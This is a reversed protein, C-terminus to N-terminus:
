GARKDKQEIQEQIDETTEQIADIQKRTTHEARDVLERRILTDTDVVAAQIQLQREGVTDFTTLLQEMKEDIHQVGKQQALIAEQQESIKENVSNAVEYASRAHATGEAIQVGLAALKRDTSAASTKTETAFTKAIVATEEALRTAVREMHELREDREEDRAKILEVMELHNRRLAERLETRYVRGEQGYRVFGWILITVITFGNFLRVFVTWQPPLRSTAFSMVFILIILHLATAKWFWRLAKM